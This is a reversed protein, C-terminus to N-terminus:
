VPRNDRFYQLKAFSGMLAKQSDEAGWVIVALHTTSPSLPATSHPLSANPAPQPTARASPSPREAPPHLAAPLHARPSGHPPCEKYRFPALLRWYLEGSPATSEM